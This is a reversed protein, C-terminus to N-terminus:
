EWGAAITKRLARDRTRQEARRSGNPVSPDFATVTLSTGLTEASAAPQAQIKYLEAQIGVGGAGLWNYRCVPVPRFASRQCASSYSLGFTEALGALVQDPMMAAMFRSFRIKWVVDFGDIPRFWVMYKVSNSEFSAVMKDLDLAEFKLDPHIGKVTDVTMGLRVGAIDHDMNVKPPEKEGNEGDLGWSKSFGGFITQYTAYSSILFIAVFIALIGRRVQRAKQTKEGGQALQLAEEILLRKEEDITTIGKFEDSKKKRAGPRGRGAWNQPQAPKPRGFDFTTATM